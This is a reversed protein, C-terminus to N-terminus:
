FPWQSKVLYFAGSAVLAAIIVMVGDKTSLGIAALIIALAPLAAAFPVLELPIMSLGVLGILTAIVRSFPPEVLLTLRPKFCRDIKQTYPKIRQVAKSLKEHSFSVQKLRKPLWPSQDSWVMQLAILFILTGCATPIGPIAGTPLLVILAPALLIPGFGRNELQDVIECLAVEDDDSADVVAELVDTIDMEQSM